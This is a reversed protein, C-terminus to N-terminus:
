NVTQRELSNGGSIDCAGAATSFAPLNVDDVLHHAYDIVDQAARAGKRLCPEDPPNSPAPHLRRTLTGGIQGTGIIGIKVQFTVTTAVSASSPRAALLASPRSILSSRRYRGAVRRQEAHATEIAGRELDSCWARLQPAELAAM